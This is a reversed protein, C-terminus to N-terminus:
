QMTQGGNVPLVQGTIFSAADSALFAIANAVDESTGARGLPVRQIQKVLYEPSRNGSNITGPVIANVRVGFPAMQRALSRTFSIIGGKATSYAMFKPDGPLAVSSSVSIICGSRRASMHKVAARSCWVAGMLNLQVIREILEEDEDAFSDFKQEGLTSGANNVLIDLAGNQGVADGIMQAVAGRSTVDAPCAIAALGRSSLESATQRATGANVDNVIVKAGLEALLTATAKGIGHGAGTVLAVKDQLARAAFANNM